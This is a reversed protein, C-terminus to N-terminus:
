KAPRRALSSSVLMFLLLGNLLVAAIPLVAKLAWNIHRKRIVVPAHVNAATGASQLPTSM